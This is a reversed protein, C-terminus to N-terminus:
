FDSKLNSPIVSDPVEAKKYAFYLLEKYQAQKACFAKYEADYKEPNFPWQIASYERYCETYNEPTPNPLADIQHSIEEIKAEEDDSEKGLYWISLTVFLVLYIAAFIGIKTRKSLRNKQSNLESIAAQVDKDDPFLLKAKTIIQKSKAKWANRIKDDSGQSLSNVNDYSINTLCLTIFEIFDEKSNPIPFNKILTVLRETKNDIGFYSGLASSNTKRIKALERQLEKVTSNGSVNSFIYGCEPCKGSFSGISAGCNPCTRMTGHKM